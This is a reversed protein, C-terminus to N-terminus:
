IINRSILNSPPCSIISREGDGLYGRFQHYRFIGTQDDKAPEYYNTDRGPVWDSADPTKSLAGDKFSRGGLMEWPFPNIRVIDNNEGEDNHSEEERAATWLQYKYASLRVMNDLYYMYLGALESVRMMMSTFGLNMGMGLSNMLGWEGPFVDAPRSNSLNKILGGDKLTFQYHHHWEDRWGCRSFPLIWDAYHQENSIAEHNLTGIIWAKSGLVDQYCLVRTGPTYMSHIRYGMHDLSGQTMDTAAITAGTDTTVWYHHAFHISDVIVGKFINGQPINKISDQPDSM